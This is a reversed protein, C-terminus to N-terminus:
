LDKGKIFGLIGIFAMILLPGGLVVVLADPLGAQAMVNVPSILINALLKLAKWVRQLTDVFGFIIGTSGAASEDIASGFFTQNVIASGNASIGVVSGLASEGVSELIADGTGFGGLWLMAAMCIYCLAVNGAVGM